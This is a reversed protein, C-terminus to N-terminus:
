MSHATNYNFASELHLIKQVKKKEDLYVEVVDFRVRRKQHYTGLFYKAASIIKRQKEPTVSAAPRVEKPNEKGLTRTKVEIFACVERNQAIVDIEYGVATYNKKLIKYGKKRLLRAAAREGVNGIERKETLVELIRM